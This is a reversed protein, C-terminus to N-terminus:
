QMAGARRGTEGVKLMATDGPPCYWNAGDKLNGTGRYRAMAPFACLPMTWDPYNLAQAKPAGPVFQTDRVRAMLTDPAEGKEVWDELATLPDFANPAVGLISCHGTGPVMFLRVQKKVQDFGGVTAALQKYYNISMYPTLREDSFNHWILMKTGSSLLRGSNEPLHGIGKRLESKAKTVESSGVVARFGSIPGPGGSKLSLISSASFGPDNKHVFVELVPGRTEIDDASGTQLESISYGPQIINGREDTVASVATNLTNIQAQTFCQDGPRDGPCLPLDREPLFNCAAPNQILGDAVGDIADCQSKVIKDLLSLHNTSLSGGPRSAALGIATGQLSVGMLNYASGAIIGDYKEPFYSAAVFADRGGGSCGSFYSRNIDREDGIARAYFAKTFEKGMDALILDARYFFDDLFDQDVKGDATIAWSARDQGIHGEDTAFAAYGKEIIQGPHGQATVIISAVAPNSVFFQGCHGSCGLQLFKGNWNAPFTALYNATKGTDPNTMFSGTVQCYAPADATAAVYVTATKFPGNEVPRVTVVTSRLSRALAQVAQPTCISELDAVTAPSQTMPQKAACGAVSALALLLGSIALLGRRPGLTALSGAPQPDVDVM